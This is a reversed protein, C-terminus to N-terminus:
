SSSLRTRIIQLIPSIKNNNYIKCLLFGLTGTALVRHNFHVLFSNEINNRLVSLKKDYHAFTPYWIDGMKPFTNTIKGADLGALFSGFIATFIALHFTLMLNKRIISNTHIFMLDNRLVQPKSILFLGFSLFYSYTLIGFTFHTALRHSSVRVDKKGYNEGLNENLGSRVMWMGIAGQMALLLGGFFSAKRLKKNFIKFLSFILSTGIFYIGLVKGLQRHYHELLYINKFGEMSLDPFDNKYQPHSKYEEFEKEWETETKPKFIRTLDWKVMSLGAKNIRVYGGVVIMSLAM